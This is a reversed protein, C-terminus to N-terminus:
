RGPAGVIDAIFEVADRLIRERVRAGALGLTGHLTGAYHRLEVDIGEDILRRALALGEDRLPDLDRTSIFTPPFGAFDALRAPAAERPPAARADGLYADWSWEALARNWIPTRTFRRASASSLRDDVVPEQLVLAAPGGGGSSRLRHAVGIALAAGASEGYLALRTADVGLAEAHSALWSWALSCDDLGAPYPHEPALRYEVAVVVVGLATVLDCSQGHVSEVSGGVFAGSHILLVAPRATSGDVPSFTHVVLEGAPRAITVVQHDVGAPTQQNGARSIRGWVERFRPVDDLTADALLIAGAGIEEDFAYKRWNRNRGSPDTSVAADDPNM